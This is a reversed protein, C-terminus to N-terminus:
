LSPLSPPLPMLSNTHVQVSPNAPSTQAVTTVVDAVAVVDVCVDTVVVVVNRNSGQLVALLGHRLPAVHVVKGFAGFSSSIEKPDPLLPLPSAPSRPLSSSPATITADHVHM